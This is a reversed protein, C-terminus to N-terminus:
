KCLFRYWVLVMKPRCIKRNPRHKRCRHMFTIVCRLKPYKLSDVSAPSVSGASGSPGFSIVRSSHFARCVLVVSVFVLDDKLMRLAPSPTSSLWHFFVYTRLLFFCNCLSSSSSSSDSSTLITNFYKVLGRYFIFCGYPRMDVSLPGGIGGGGMDHALCLEAGM